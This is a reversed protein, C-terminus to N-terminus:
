ERLLDLYEQAIKKGEPDSPASSIYEGLYKEAKNRYDDAQQLKDKDPVNKVKEKLALANQSYYVGLNYNASAKTEVREGSLGLAMKFANLAKDTEKLNLYVRGLNNYAEAFEPDIEVAKELARAAFLFRGLMNDVIGKLRWLSKNMPDAKLGAEIEDMIPKAESYALMVPEGKRQAESWKLADKKEIEKYLCVALYYRAAAERFRFRFVDDEEKGKGSSVVKKSGSIALDRAERFMPAAKDFSGGDMLTIADDIIKDIGQGAEVFKESVFQSRVVGPLDGPGHEKTGFGFLLWVGLLGLCFAIVLGKIFNPLHSHGGSENTSAPM